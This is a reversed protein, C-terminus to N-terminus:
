EASTSEDSDDSEDPRVATEAAKVIKNVVLEDVEEIVSHPVAIQPIVVDTKTEPGEKGQVIKVTSVNLYGSEQCNPCAWCQAVLHDSPSIEATALKSIVDYEEEELAEALTGIETAALSVAGKKETWCNCDECFPTEMTSGATYCMWLVILAELIWFTYLGWGTPKAGKMEWLGIQGFLKMFEITVAPKFILVGRNWDMVMFIYWVWAFYLGLCGIVMAILTMFFRNRVKCMHGIMNVSVGMIIGFGLTVFFQIYILPNYRSILAYIFSVLLAVLTGVLLMAATGVFPIKGSPRYYRDAQSSM